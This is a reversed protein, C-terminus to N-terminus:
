AKTRPTIAAAIREIDPQFDAATEVLRMRGGHNEIYFRYEPFYPNLVLVEDGPDLISKLVTNIAGAAGSTMIIDDGTFPLGTRVALGRALTDRVEPYGANPMYAHTRPRNEAVVRRLADMVSAPPEVDPNGLTFDFVNEPGRQRRLELGIEFMRRIWSSREMQEAIARSIM